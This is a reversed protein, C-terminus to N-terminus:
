FAVHVLRCESGHVATDVSRKALKRGAALRAHEQMPVIEFLDGLMDLTEGVLDCKMRAPLDMGPFFALEPEDEVGLFDLPHLLLSPEVGMLRAMRIASWFYTKALTASFRALYAIYSLHIPSKLIPFTTVPIEVLQESNETWCFPRNPQLGDRWRGFLERREEKQQRSFNSRMFYFARALPGLFTPFTSGDYRYGRRILVRLTQNTLSFGPGRFGIPRVGTVAEIAEEAEVLEREVQQPSYLHLWPEHHFSHNGMEHGAEALALLPERNKPLVADQGVVFVTIKLERESLCKLIRPVVRDLYSPFQEWGPDGHTRQYAWKNDLDLSVSAIPKSSM